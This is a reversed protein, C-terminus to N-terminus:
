TANAGPEAAPPTLRVLAIRQRQRRVIEFRFDHFRFTQGVDPIRRSEHLIMGAITAAEEDPLHWDLERNLDRITVSGQVLYSGDPQPRVGPVAIDHEDTIEGVIEELIDELTVVGMLSGYEDVVLASHEHRERFAQLQDLLSTSEPIFWPSAALSLIDLETLDGERARVARLLAKAHLVGVVEDPTGRWLPIRTYPSELVEDVITDTPLEANITVMNRRHTMIESVWVESLDLVSRLMARENTEAAGDRAHLDIAGRLEEYNSGLMEEAQVDVGFPKLVSRIIAQIAATVPALLWVVGNVVPAVALATSNANKFAYTKPLMEAFILILLTMVVTAYVVGAEGFVGILASTALASALINVLNNGLLIAGILREKRAHLRNVIGARRSGKQELQHMVPTSAATLATESGSFLASLVLLVVIASILVLM